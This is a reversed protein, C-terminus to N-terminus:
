RIKTLFYAGDHYLTSCESWVSFPEHLASNHKTHTYSLMIAIFPVLCLPSQRPLRSFFSLIAFGFFHSGFISKFPKPDLAFLPRRGNGYEDVYVVCYVHLARAACESRSGVCINLQKGDSSYLLIGAVNLTRSANITVWELM